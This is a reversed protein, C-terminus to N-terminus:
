RDARMTPVVAAAQLLDAQVRSPCPWAMRANPPERMTMLGLPSEERVVEGTDTVWSTTKLGRFDMEVRFAPMVTDNARVVDRDGVRVTMVASQLTAPDLVTWEHRTGPM